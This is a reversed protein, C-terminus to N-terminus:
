KPFADPSHSVSCFYQNLNRVVYQKTEKGANRDANLTFQAFNCALSRTGYTGFCEVEKQPTENFTPKIFGLTPNKAFVNQQSM